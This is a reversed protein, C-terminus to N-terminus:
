SASDNGAISRLIDSPGAVLFAFPSCSNNSIILSTNCGSGSSSCSVMDRSCFDDASTEIYKDSGSTVSLRKSHHFTFLKQYGRKDETAFFYKGIGAVDTGESLAKLKAPCITLLFFLRGADM